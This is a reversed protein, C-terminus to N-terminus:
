NGDFFHSQSDADYIEHAIQGLLKNINMFEGEVWLYVDGNQKIELANRRNEDDSGNGVSFLTKESPNDSNVSINYQGFAVEREGNRVLTDNDTYGLKEILEAIDNDLLSINETNASVQASIDEYESKDLKEDLLADTEEKKYYDSLDVIDGVPIVVTKEGEPTEYIFILNGDEFKVDKLIGAHEVYEHFERHLVDLVGNKDSDDYVGQGDWETVANIRTTNNSIAKQLETHGSDCYQKLEVEVKDIETDTYTKSSLISANIANELTEADKQDVYEKTAFTDRIDAIANELDRDKDIRANTEDALAAEFGDVRGSLVRVTGGLDRQADEVERIRDDFESVSDAIAREAAMAREKEANVKADISAEVAADGDIRAQVEDALDNRLGDIDYGIGDIQGQLAADGAERASTEAAIAAWLQGDVTEMDQRNQNIVAWQQSDTEALAAEFQQMPTIIGDVEEKTYYNDANFIDGINLYIDEKGADTNFVIHLYTDGSIETLEVSDVMGDKIFETADISDVLEDNINYFNITKASSDYEVNAVATTKREEIENELDTKLTDVDGSISEISDGLVDVAGSIAEVNEELTAVDGSLENINDKIGEVDEKINEVDEKLGDVDEELTEVKGSLEGIEEDIDTMGSRINDLEDYIEEIEEEIETIGSSLGSISEILSEVYETDAKGSIAAELEEDTVVKEDLGLGEDSLTLLEEGEVLKVSIPKRGTEENKEGIEIGQGAEYLEVLSAVDLEVTQTEGNLTLIDFLIANLDEDYRCNSVEGANPFEIEALISDDHAKDILSLVGSFLELGVCAYLSDDKEITIINGDKDSVKVKYLSSKASDMKNNERYGYYDLTNIYKKSM